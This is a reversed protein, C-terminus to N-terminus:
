RERRRRVEDSGGSLFLVVLSLLLGLVGSLYGAAYGKTSLENEYDHDEEKGESLIAESEKALIPLYSNYFIVSLGYMTNSFVALIAALVHKYGAHRESFAAFVLLSAGGLVTTM